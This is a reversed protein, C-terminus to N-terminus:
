GGHFSRLRDRLSRSQFFVRSEQQILETRTPELGRDRSTLLSSLVLDRENPFAPWFVFRRTEVFPRLEKICPAQLYRYFVKLMLIAVDEPANRWLQKAFLARVFDKWHPFALDAILKELWLRQNSHNAKQFAQLAADTPLQVISLFPLSQQIVHPSRSLLCRSLFAARGDWNLLAVAPLLAALREFGLDWLFDGFNAERERILELVDAIVRENRRAIILDLIVKWRDTSILKLLQIASAKGEPSALADLLLMQNDPIELAKRIRDLVEQVTQTLHPKSKVANLRKLFYLILSPHFRQIISQAVAELQKTSFQLFGPADSNSAELLAFLRTMWNFEIQNSDYSEMEARIPALESPVFRLISRARESYTGDSLYSRLRDADMESLPKITKALRREVSPLSWFEDRADKITAGVKEEGPALKGRGLRKSNAFDGALASQEVLGDASEESELIENKEDRDLPNSGIDEVELLANYISVRLHQFKNRWLISALDTQDNRGARLHERLLQVWEYLESGTFGRSVLISKVGECFLSYAMTLEPRDARFIEQGNSYVATMLFDFQVAGESFDPDDLTNSLSKGILNVHHGLADKQGQYLGSLKFMKEFDRFVAVSRNSSKM